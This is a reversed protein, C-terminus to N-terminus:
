PVLCDAIKKRDSLRDSGTLFPGLFGVADSKPLSNAILCKDLKAIGAPDLKAEAENEFIVARIVKASADLSFRFEEMAAANATAKDEEESSLQTLDVIANALSGAYFYSELDAMAAVLTYDGVPRQMRHIISARVNARSARMQSILATITKEVLIESNFAGSSGTLGASTAALVASGGNFTGAIGAGLNALAFAFNTNRGENFLRQEYDRYARDIAYIQADILTNRQSQDYSAGAKPLGELVRQGGDDKKFTSSGALAFEFQAPGAILNIVDGSGDIVDPREPRGQFAACASLAGSLMISATFHSLSRWARNGCTKWLHAVAAFPIPRTLIKTRPDGGAMNLNPILMSEDMLSRGESSNGQATKRREPISVQDPAVQSSGYHLAPRADFPDSRGQAARRGGAALPKRPGSWPTHRDSWPDCQILGAPTESVHACCLPGLQVDGMVEADKLFYFGLPTEEDFGGSRVRERMSACSWMDAVDVAKDTAM